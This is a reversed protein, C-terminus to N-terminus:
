NETPTKEAHDVALVEMQIKRAELKLGLQADLASMAISPLDIPADGPQRDALYPRMDVKFDYFGELGTMDRVPTKLASSVIDTLRSLPMKHGEFMLAGGTMSGEGGGEVPHLKTGNKGVVLAYGSIDKVQRHVELKFRDKLLTQLMLRLRDEAVPSVAKATIDFRANSIWDPGSIEYVGLKYAWRIATSLSVNVMTLRAPDTNIDERLSALGRGAPTQSVKISAVEFTPLAGGTTQGRAGGGLLATLFVAAITQRMM